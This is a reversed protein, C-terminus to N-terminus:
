QELEVEIDLVDPNKMYAVFSRQFQLTKGDLSFTADEVSANKIKRPFTYKIKYEMAGMFAETQKLSDIQAKHKTQDKIYADRKFIGNKFSYNVGIIESQKEDDPKVIENSKTSSFGQVQEFAEMLNNSQTIDKFDLILDIMFVDNDGDTVMRMKYAELSKLRNQEEKPLKAISDKHQRLIDKFVILTDKQISTTDKDLEQGMAAVESLDISLTITGSGDEQLVMTESFQCSILTLSVLLFLALKYM